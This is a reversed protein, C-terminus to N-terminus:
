LWLRRIMPSEHGDGYRSPKVVGSVDDLITIHRKSNSLLGFKGLLMQSLM